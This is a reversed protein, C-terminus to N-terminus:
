PNPIPDGIGLLCTPSSTKTTWTTKDASLSRKVITLSWIGTVPDRYAEYKRGTDDFQSGQMTVKAGHDRAAMRAVMEDHRIYTCPDTYPIEALPDVAAGSASAFLGVFILVKWGWLDFRAKAMLGM